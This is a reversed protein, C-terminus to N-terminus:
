CELCPDIAVFFDWEGGACGGDVGRPTWAGVSLRQINRSQPLVCTLLDLMVAMDDLALAADDTMEDASPPEGSSGVSHACRIVGLGLHFALLSISCGIKTGRQTVDRAPFPSTGGTGATPYVEIVRLYAQGECCDDWAPEGGPVLHALGVPRGGSELAGALTQVIPLLLAPYDRAM